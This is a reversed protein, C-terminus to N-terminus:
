FGTTWTNLSHAYTATRCAGSEAIRETKLLYGSLEAANLKGGYRSFAIEEETVLGKDKLVEPSIYYPSIIEAAVSSYPSNGYGTPALPLIQWYSQGAKKLYDIFRFAESGFGGIGYESPLSFIPLLIGCRRQM